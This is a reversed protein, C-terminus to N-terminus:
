PRFNRWRSKWLLFTAISKTRQLKGQENALKEASPFSLIHVNALASEPDNLTKKRIKLHNFLNKYFADFVRPLSDQDILAQDLLQKFMVIAVFHFGPLGTKSYKFIYKLINLADDLSESLESKFNYNSIFASYDFTDDDNVFDSMYKGPKVEITCCLSKITPQVLKTIVKVWKRSYAVEGSFLSDKQGILNTASSDTGSLISPMFVGRCLNRLVQHEQYNGCLKWSEGSIWWYIGFPWGIKNRIRFIFILILINKFGQDYQTVKWKRVFNPHLWKRFLHRKINLIALFNQEPTENPNLEKRLILCYLLGLTHFRASHGYISGASGINSLKLDEEITVFIIKSFKRLKDYIPQSGCSDSRATSLLNVYMVNM